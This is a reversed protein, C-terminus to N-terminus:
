KILMMKKLQTFRRNPDSMSVADIRYFYLGSAADANWVTEYSGADQETNILDTVQQGLANFIRLSVRCL